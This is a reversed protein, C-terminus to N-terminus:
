IANVNELDVKNLVSGSFKGNLDKFFEISSKDIQKIIKTASFIAIVGDVYKVLERSDSFDNLPPGELFIYDFESTLEKLHVLINNIPLIESPTYDGGESGIVFVNESLKTANNLIASISYDGKDSMKELVPDAGMQVTLDNNCFNTDIVLVKKRSLSLSYSLAQILTTKGEGKRTSTFLFVKKGDREVEYRLKRISERFVNSRKKEANDREIINGSVLDKLNRNKLSKFNVMSIMKLNVAKSFIGPTKISSDLYTLLVIVLICSLFTVVGAMGVIMKRKSPEPDVAPQATQIQRFNNALSTSVDVANSYKQKADLYEREALKVEELMTEVQAGRSSTSAINGKLGGIRSEIGRIKDTSAQIDTELDMKEELLQSRSASGGTESPTVSSSSNLKKQYEEKLRTHKALAANDGTQLYEKYADNMAKRATVIDENSGGTSQGAASGGPLNALKQNVKRLSYYAETQKNKEATLSQELSAIIDLKSSTESMVDVSSSEGRLMRNKEDLETKKKDMLSQLTDISQQTRSNRMNAYYRIFQQYMNNVLFASLEPNESVGNIEIYDTGPVRYINLMSTLANHNYGYLKMLDLLKKDEPKYSTLMSMTELKNAYVKKAEEINVQKLVPSAADEKTLTKFPVSDLDHLMMKYSLLSVVGPSSFTNIANNFRVDAEFIRTETLNIEETISYGTSIRATSKYYKIENRTFFWAIFAALVSAGIIIWKRKLLVKILYLLDM